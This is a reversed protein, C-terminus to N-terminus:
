FISRQVVDTPLNRKLTDTRAEYWTKKFAATVAATGRVRISHFIFSSPNFKRMMAAGTLSCRLLSMM